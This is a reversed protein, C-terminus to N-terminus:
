SQVCSFFELCSRLRFLSSFARASHQMDSAACRGLRAHQPREPGSEPIMWRELRRLRQTSQMVPSLGAGKGNGDPVLLLRDMRRGSKPM